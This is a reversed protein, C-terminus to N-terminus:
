QAGSKNMAKCADVAKAGQSHVMQNVTSVYGTCMQLRSVDPVRPNRCMAKAFKKCEGPAKGDLEGLAGDIQADNAGVGQQAAPAAYAAPTAGAAAAAPAAMASSPASPAPDVAGAGVQGAKFTAPINALVENMQPEPDESSGMGVRRTARYLITGDAAFIFLGVDKFRDMRCTQTNEQITAIPTGSADRVTKTDQECRAYLRMAPMAISKAGTAQAIERIVAAASPAPTTERWAHFADSAAVTSCLASTAAPSLPLPAAPMSARALADFRATLDAGSGYPLAKTVCSLVTTTITPEPANGSPFQDSRHPGGVALMACGGAAGLGLGFAGLALARALWSKQPRTRLMEIGGTAVISSGTPDIDRANVFSKAARHM